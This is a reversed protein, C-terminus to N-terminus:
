QHLFIKFEVELQSYEIRLQAHLQEAALWDRKNLAELLEACIFEFRSTYFNSSTGKLSHTAVHGKDYDQQQIGSLAQQMQNPADRLFLMALKEIISRSGGLSSITKHQDWSSSDNM